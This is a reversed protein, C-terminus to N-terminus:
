ATMTPGFSVTRVVPHISVSLGHSSATCRAHLLCAACTGEPSRVTKGPEFPMSVGPPGTLQGAAFDLTFQIRSAAPDKRAFPSARAVAAAMAARAPTDSASSNAATPVLAPTISTSM